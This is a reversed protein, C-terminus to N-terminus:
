RVGGGKKERINKPHGGEIAMKKEHGGGGLDWWGGGVEYFIFPGEYESTCVWYELGAGGGGGGGGQEGARESLFFFFFSRLHM